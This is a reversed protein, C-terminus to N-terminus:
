FCKKYMIFPGQENYEKRYVWLQQFSKLSALISGGTWVSYKREPCYELVPKDYPSLKNLEKQFRQPFGDLMTTGGCLLVNKLMDKKVSADCKNLCNVTAIHLGIQSSGIISPKFLSEPCLFRERGITLLHGDPLEYDALYERFPLGMEYHIESAVYCCKNKIDEVIPFHEEKFKSGSQNLLEMLYKTIDAGAYDVRETIHPLTYGEYMPVVHSVGHGCEVVLGTTKGYSYMSLRSQYAIHMAPLNFTEFMMEAYKERNTTPSLPPDSVLVAHEEPLIKMKNLFIYEWIEQLCEWDVVIGHRVPNVRKLPIHANALEHGIYTEKRKDGTKVTEQLHKGVTSSIVYSPKPQGAYGAKCSGTGIDIIVPLTEKVIKGTQLPVPMCKGKSKTDERILVARKAPGQQPVAVPVCTSTMFRKSSM